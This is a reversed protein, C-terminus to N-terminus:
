YTSDHIRRENYYCLISNSELVAKPLVQPQATVNLGISLVLITSIWFSAITNSLMKMISLQAKKLMQYISVRSRPLGTSDCRSLRMLSVVYIVIKGDM